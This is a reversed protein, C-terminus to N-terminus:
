ERVDTAIVSITFSGNARAINSFTNKNLTSWDGTYTNMTVSAKKLPDYYTTSQFASDLIPVLAELEAQTTPKFTLKLKVIIGLLTGSMSGAMNRGTDGGWVKNYGYEVQTVYDSMNVNDIILSNKDIYM